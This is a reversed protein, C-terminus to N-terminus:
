PKQNRLGPQQDQHNQNEEKQTQVQKGSAPTGAFRLRRQVDSFSPLFSDGDHDLWTELLTWQAPHSHLAPGAAQAGELPRKPEPAKLSAQILSSILSELSERRESALRKLARITAADLNISLSAGSQSEKDM